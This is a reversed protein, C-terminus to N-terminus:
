TGHADGPERPMKKLIKEVQRLTRRQEDDLATTLEDRCFALANSGFRAHLEAANRYAHDMKQQQSRFWDAMGM